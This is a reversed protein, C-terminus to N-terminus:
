HFPGLCHPRLRNAQGHCDADDAPLQRVQLAQGQCRLVAPSLCNPLLKAAHCLQCAKADLKRHRGLRSVAELVQLGQAAQCAKLDQLQLCCLSRVLLRCLLPLLIVVLKSHLEQACESGQSRELQWHQCGPPKELM